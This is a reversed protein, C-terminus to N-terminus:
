RGIYAANQQLRLGSASGQQGQHIAFRVGARCREGRVVPRLHDCRQIAHIVDVHAIGGIRTRGDCIESGMGIEIDLQGRLAVHDPINKLQVSLALRGARM